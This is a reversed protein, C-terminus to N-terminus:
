NKCAEPNEHCMREMEKLLREQEPLRRYADVMAQRGARIMDEAEADPNV